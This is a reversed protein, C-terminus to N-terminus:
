WRQACVAAQGGDGGSHQHISAFFECAGDALWEFRQVTSRSLECSSSSGGHNFISSVFSRANRAIRKPLFNSSSRVGGEEMTADDEEQIRRKCRHLMDDCEQAACKLKSRWRLLPMSSINRRPAGRAGTCRTMASRRRESSSAGGACCHRALSTGHAPSLEELVAELRIHAM